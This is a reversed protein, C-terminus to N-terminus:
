SHFVTVRVQVSRQVQEVAEAETKKIEEADSRAKKVAEVLIDNDKKLKETLANSGAHSQSGIEKLAEKLKVNELQLLEM